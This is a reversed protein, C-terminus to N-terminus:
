SAEKGLAMFRCSGVVSAQSDFSVLGAGDKRLTNEM